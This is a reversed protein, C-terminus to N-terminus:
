CADKDLRLMGGSMGDTNSGVGVKQRTTDMHKEKERELQKHM